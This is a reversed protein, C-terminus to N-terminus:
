RKITSLFSILNLKSYKNNLTYYFMMFLIISSSLDHCILRSYNFLFTLRINKIKNLSNRMSKTSSFNIIIKASKTFLVLILFKNIEIKKFINEVLLIYVM